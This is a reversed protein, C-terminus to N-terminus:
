ILLESGPNDKETEKSVNMNVRQLEYQYKGVSASKSVEYRSVHDLRRAIWKVLISVELVDYGECYKVDIDTKESRRLAFYFRPVGIKLQNLLSRIM